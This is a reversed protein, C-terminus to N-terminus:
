QSYSPQQYLNCLSESRRRHAARETSPCTENDLLSSQTQAVARWQDVERVALPRPDTRALSLRALSYPTSLRDPLTATASRKEPPSHKEPQSDQRKATL